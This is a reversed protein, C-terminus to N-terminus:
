QAADMAQKILIRMTESMTGPQAKLWEIMEEPLWIATQKMPKGYYTPRGAAEEVVTDFAEEYEVEQVPLNEYLERAEDRSLPTITDREGQWQNVDVRFYAGGRTKYLFTNRFDREFSHGDWYEDSALLTATAVNYRKGGLVRQLNTDPRM